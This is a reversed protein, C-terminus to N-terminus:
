AQCGLTWAIIDLLRLETLHGVHRVRIDSDARLKTVLWAFDTASDVLDRRPAGWWRAGPDDIELALAPTRDAYVQDLVTQTANSAWGQV